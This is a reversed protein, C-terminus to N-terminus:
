AAPRSLLIAGAPNCCVMGVLSTVACCFAMRRTDYWSVLWLPIGCYEGLAEHMVLHQEEDMLPTGCAIAVANRRLAVGYASMGDVDMTPYPALTHIHQVGYNGDTPPLGLRNYAILSAAAEPALLLSDVGANFLPSIKLAVTEPTVVSSPESDTGNQLWLRGCKGAAPLTLGAASQAAPAVAALAAGFKNVLTRCHSLIMSRLKARWRGGNRLDQYTASFETWQTDCKVNVLENALTSNEGFTTPNELTTASDKVVEVAITPQEGRKTPVIEPHVAMSVSALPALVQEAETIVEAAIITNLPQTSEALAMQAGARVQRQVEVAAAMRASATPHDELYKARQDAAATGPQALGGFWAEAPPITNTSM